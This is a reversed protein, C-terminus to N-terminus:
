FCLNKTALKLNIGKLSARNNRILNITSIAGNKKNIKSQKFLLMGGLM